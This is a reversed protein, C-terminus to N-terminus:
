GSTRVDSVCGTGHLYIPGFTDILTKKLKLPLTSMSEFTSIRQSFIAKIIQEYRYDPLKMDAILRKMAEYKSYNM